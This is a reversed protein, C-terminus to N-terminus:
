SLHAGAQLWSICDRPIFASHPLASNLKPQAGAQLWCICDRPIFALAAVWRQQTHMVCPLRRVVNKCSLGTASCQGDQWGYSYAAGSTIGPSATAVPGNTLWSGMPQVHWGCRRSLQM